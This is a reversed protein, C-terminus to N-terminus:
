SLLVAMAELISLHLSSSKSVQLQRKTPTVGHPKSRDEYRSLAELGWGFDAVEKRIQARSIRVSELDGQLEPNKKLAQHVASYLSLLETEEAELYSHFSFLLFLARLIFRSYM